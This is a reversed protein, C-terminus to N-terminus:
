DISGKRTQRRSLPKTQCVCLIYKNYWVRWRKAVWKQCKEDFKKRNCFDGEPMGFAASLAHRKPDYGIISDDVISREAGVKRERM